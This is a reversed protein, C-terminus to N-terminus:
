KSKLKIYGLVIAILALVFGILSIQPLSFIDSSFGVWLFGFIAAIWNSTALASQAASQQNLPYLEYVLKQSIGKSCYIMVSILFSILLYEIWNNGIFLLFMCLLIAFLNSILLKKNSIKQSLVGYIYPLPLAFLAGWAFIHSIEEINFAKDKMILSLCFRGIHTLMLGINLVLMLWIFQSNIKFKQKDKISEQPKTVKIFVLLLKSLFFAIAFILFTLEQGIWKILSGTLFSGIVTGILITNALKGFNIGVSQAPSIYSMIISTLNQNIGALFWVLSTVVLFVAFSNQIGMLFLSISLLISVLVVVNIISSNFKLAKTTLVSGIFIAIYIVTMFIGTQKNTAGTNSVLVPLLPYIGQLITRDIISSILLINIAKKQM